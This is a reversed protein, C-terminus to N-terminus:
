HKVFVLQTDDPLDERSSIKLTAGCDPCKCDRIEEQRERKRDEEAVAAIKRAAALIDEKSFKRKKQMSDGGSRAYLDACSKDGMAARRRIYEAHELPTPDWDLIGLGRDTQWRQEPGSENHDLPRQLAKELDSRSM